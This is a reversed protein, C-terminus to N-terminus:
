APTYKSDLASAELSQIKSSALGVSKFYEKRRPLVKLFDEKRICQAGDPGGFLFVNAYCAALQEVDFSANAAEYSMFFENVQTDLDSM